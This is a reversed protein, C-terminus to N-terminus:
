ILGEDAFSLYSENTLILHDLLGIDLIKGGEKLKKTLNIDEVSPKLQGSPHNHAILIGSAGAKLAIGFVMKADVVTGSIGGSSIKVYGITNNVRNLLVMFFSENYEITDADFILRLFKEADKSTTVKIKMVDADQKYKICIEPCITKYEKM